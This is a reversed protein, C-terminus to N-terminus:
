QGGSKQIEGAVSSAAFTWHLKLWKENTYKKEKYMNVEEVKKKTEM